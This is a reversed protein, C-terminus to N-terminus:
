FLASLEQFSPNELWEMWRNLSSRLLISRNKVFGSILFFTSSVLFTTVWALFFTLVIQAFARPYPSLRLTKLFIPVFALLAGLSLPAFLYPWRTDRFTELMAEFILLYVVFMCYPLFMLSLFAYYAIWYAGNKM